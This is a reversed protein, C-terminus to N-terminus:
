FRLATTVLVSRPSGPNYRGGNNNVSRVYVKDFLNNVNLRLVLRSGVPAEVLLDALAYGPLSLTNAANVFVRDVFVVGGGVRVDKPLRYTTWLSGSRSPTLVLRRGANAANQSLNESDLYQLSLNLEWRPTPRGVLTVSAGKVLQGDDQNFVPPVATADVVFIVNTNETRFVAGSLQFRGGAFDWKSGAEVNMSEQPDVNPNNQNAPNANLQFNSSGPPTLSSGYSAYVNGRENLRYLAGVKGSVLTGAGELDTAVGTTAVSHSRTAYRELRVGGTVRLKASLDVADFAYLAATNSQGESLAGSPVIEMDLVPGFVDPRHLDVPARTGAGALGPADYNEASVELGLNLDHRLRGTSVRAALNTQNSVIDNTRRNAQRSLTVLNTVPNYAAANAISTVVADRDTVSYRTQNRLTLSRGLDREARVTLSDQRVRDFDADPSGYYTSQDVPADALTGTSAFTGIPSAAAPLGYDPLNDQRMIQASVTLRTATNLGFAISPAISRSERVVHARGEVGGDQWLVNVRVASNGLFAGRDGLKLAQNVDITARASDGSSLAVSAGRVAQMQPTKTTLNIYGAANSRGVDSGTPGSFVELQELNFVDRSILGDDRVGDVFLSNAASFGRMNFMDGSTNSAGGGEGAQLTIGPVNRLAETLTTAGQEEITARPIVQITQPTETLTGTYKTSTVSPLSGAVEVSDTLRIEVAFTGPATARHILSSGHLLRVLAQEATLRGSAGDSTLGRLLDPAADIKLKTLTEFQQLASSLPGAPIAFTFMAEQQASSGGSQRITRVERIRDLRKADALVAEISRLAGMTKDFRNLTQPGHGSPLGQAPTAAEVPSVSVAAASAFLV